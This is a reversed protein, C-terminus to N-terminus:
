RHWNSESLKAAEVRVYTYTPTYALKIFVLSEEDVMYKNVHSTRRTKISMRELMDNRVHTGTTIMYHKSLTGDQPM